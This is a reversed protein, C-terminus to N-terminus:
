LKTKADIRRVFDSITKLAELEAPQFRIGFRIEASVILAIYRASDWGPFDAPKAEPTLALSDDEFVDQFVETLAAYIQAEQM